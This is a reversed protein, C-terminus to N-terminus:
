DTLSYDDKIRVKTGNELIADIEVFDAMRSLMQKETLARGNFQNYGYYSDSFRSYQLTKTDIGLSHVKVKEMPCGLDILSNAMYPGECLFMEASSFLEKYRKIWIPNKAPLMGVDFGYFTVIQKLDNDQVLHLDFWARNGFHSHFIDPKNKKIADDFVRPYRRFNIDAKRIARFLINDLNNAEIILDWPFLSLNERQYTLVISQVSKMYRLQNYIWTQTIPLWNQVSHAIIM